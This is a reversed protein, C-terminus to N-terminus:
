DGGVRKRLTELAKDLRAKATSPSIDFDGAIQKFTRGEIVHLEVLVREEDELEDMASLLRRVLDREEPDHEDLHLSGADVLSVMPQEHRSRVSSDRRHKYILNRAVQYLWSHFRGEPRYRSRGEFVAVFLEQLLDSAAYTDPLHVLIFRFMPGGYRQVIEDMAATEGRSLFAMLEDDTYEQFNVPHGKGLPGELVNRSRYLISFVGVRSGRCSNLRGSGSVCARRM